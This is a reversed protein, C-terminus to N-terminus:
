MVDIKESFRSGLDSDGEYFEGDTYGSTVSMGSVSTMRNRERESALSLNDLQSYKKNNKICSRGGVGSQGAVHGQSLNRSRGGGSSKMININKNLDHSADYLDGIEEQDLDLDLDGDYNLDSKESFTRTRDKLNLIRKKNSFIYVENVTAIRHLTFYLYHLNFLILLINSIPWIITTIYAHHIVFKDLIFFILVSIIGPIKLFYFFLPKKLPCKKPFFNSNESVLFVRCFHCSMRLIYYM